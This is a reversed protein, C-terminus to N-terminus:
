HKANDSVRAATNADREDSTIKNAARHHGTAKRLSRLEVNLKRKITALLDIAAGAKM